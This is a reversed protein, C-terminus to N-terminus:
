QRGVLFQQRDHMARVIRLICATAIMQVFTIVFFMAVVVRSWHLTTPPITRTRAYSVMGPWVLVLALAVSALGAYWYMRLARRGWWSGNQNLFQEYGLPSLAIM